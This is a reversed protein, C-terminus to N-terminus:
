QLPQGVVNEIVSVWHPSHMMPYEIYSVLTSNNRFRVQISTDVTMDMMSHRHNNSGRLLLADDYDNIEDEFQCVLTTLTQLTHSNGMAVVTADVAM